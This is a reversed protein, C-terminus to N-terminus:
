GIMVEDFEKLSLEASSRHTVPDATCTWEAGEGDADVPEDVMVYLTMLLLDREEETLPRDSTFKINVEYKPM